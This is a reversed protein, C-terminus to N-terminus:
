KSDGVPRTPLAVPSGYVRSKIVTENLQKSADERYFTAAVIM